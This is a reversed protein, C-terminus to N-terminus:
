YSIKFAIYNIQMSAQQKKMLKFKKCFIIKLVETTSEGLTFITSFQTIRGVGKKLQGIM